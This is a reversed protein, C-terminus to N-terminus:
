QHLPVLLAAVSQIWPPSFFTSVGASVFVAGVDHAANSFGVADVGSLTVSVTVLM